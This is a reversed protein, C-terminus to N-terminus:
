KHFEPTSKEKKESDDDGCKRRASRGRALKPQKEPGEEGGPSEKFIDSGGTLQVISDPMRVGRNFRAPCPKISVRVTAEKLEKMVGLPVQAESFLREDVLEQDFRLSLCARFKM